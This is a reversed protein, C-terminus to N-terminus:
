AALLELEREVYHGAMDALGQALDDFSFGPNPHNLYRIMTSMGSNIFIYAVTQLRNMRLIEPHAIAHQVFLDSLARYIPVFPVHREMLASERACRLYRENNKNLFQATEVILQHIADRLSVRVINPTVRQILEVMEKSFREGMAAYIAEKNDFYEYISGVGVGAYEAIQRTTAGLAGHEAVAIFAGEVIADVTHKSRQQQPKRPM